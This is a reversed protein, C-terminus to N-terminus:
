FGLPMSTQRYCTNHTTLFLDRCRGLWEDMPTRGVPHPQIHDHLRSLSYVRAWRPINAWSSFIGTWFDYAWTWEGVHQTQAFSYGCNTNRTTSQEIYEEADSSSPHQCLFAHYLLESCIFLYVQFGLYLTTIIRM